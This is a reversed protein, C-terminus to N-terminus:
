VVRLGRGGAPMPVTHATILHAIAGTYAIRAGDSSVTVVGVSEVFRRLEHDTASAIVDRVTVLSEAAATLTELSIPQPLHERDHAISALAEALRADEDDMVHGDIKGVAYRDYARQWRARADRERRELAARRKVAERGGLADQANEHARLPMEVHELDLSLARRIATSLITGGVVPRPDTCTRDYHGSCRFSGGGSRRDYQYYMRRSCSHVIVGEWPHSPRGNHQVVVNGAIRRQVTTWTVDDIIRWDDNHAVVTGKHAIDGRYIPNTLLRRVTTNTWQGGRAGTEQRLSETIASLPEGSAYRAFLDRVFDAGDQDVVPTGTQRTYATGDSRTVTITHPRVYGIAANGSPFAGDRLRRAHAGRLHASMETRNKQHMLALIGHFFEDAIEGETDSVIRTIGLSQFERILSFHLVIDRALRSLSILWLTNAGDSTIRHRLEDLGPRAPDSGRLDHDAVVGLPHADNAACWQRFRDEQSRISLSDLASREGSRAESQRCYGIARVPATM